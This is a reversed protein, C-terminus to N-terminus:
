VLDYIEGIYRAHYEVDPSACNKLANLVMMARDRNGTFGDDTSYFQAIGTLVMIEQGLHRGGCNQEFWFQGPRLRAALTSDNLPQVEQLIQKWHERAREYFELIDRNGNVLAEITNKM